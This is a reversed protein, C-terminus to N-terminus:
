YIDDLPDHNPDYGHEHIVRKIFSIDTFEESRYVLWSFLRVISHIEPRDEGRWSLLHQMILRPGDDLENLRSKVNAPLGQQQRLETVDKIDNLEFPMEGFFVNYAFIGFAWTDYNKTASGHELFDPPMSLFSTLLRKNNDQFVLQEDAAREIGYIYAMELDESQCNGLDLFKVRPDNETRDRDYKPMEFDDLLLINSPHLDRHVYGTQSFYSLGSAIRHLFEYKEEISYDKTSIHSLLSGEEYKYGFCLVMGSHYEKLNLAIKPLPYSSVPGIFYKPDRLPNDGFDMNLKNDKLVSYELKFRELEIKNRPSILFKVVIKNNGKVYVSSLASGGGLSELFEYGDIKLLGLSSLLEYNIDALM